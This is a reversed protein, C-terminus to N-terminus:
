NFLYFGLVSDMTPQSAYEVGISLGSINKVYVSREVLPRQSTDLRFSVHLLDGVQFKPKAFLGIRMGTRSIDLVQIRGQAEPTDRDDADAPFRYTGELCTEKRFNKRKELSVTFVRTCPCKVKLRSPADPRIFSSVDVIKTKRCQPCQLTATDDANVFVKEVM